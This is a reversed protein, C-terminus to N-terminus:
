SVKRITWFDSAFVYPNHPDLYASDIYCFGEDGWGTGWSNRIIFRNDQPRWGVILMCHGGAPTDNPDPMPVIGDSGVYFISDYVTAGFVVPLKEQLAVNVMDLSTVRAYEIAREALASGYAHAPPKETFRSIDYQWAWRDAVGASNVAKIGDRVYLGSDWPITGEIERGVYYTFLASPSLVTNSEYKEAYNVAGLVGHAVCSGLQGQDWVLPGDARLDIEMLLNPRLVTPLYIFDRHDPISPRAGLGYTM